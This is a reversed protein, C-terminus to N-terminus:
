LKFNSIAIVESTGINNLINLQGSNRKLNEMFLQTKNKGPRYFDHEIKLHIKKFRYIAKQKQEQVKNLNIEEFIRM